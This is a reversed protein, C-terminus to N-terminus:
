SKNDKGSPHICCPSVTDNKEHQQTGRPGLDPFYSRGQYYCPCFTIKLHVNADVTQIISNTEALSLNKADDQFHTHMASATVRKKDRVKERSDNISQSFMTVKPTPTIDTTTGYPTVVILRPTAFASIAALNQVTVIFSNVCTCEITSTFEQSKLSEEGKRYSVSNM